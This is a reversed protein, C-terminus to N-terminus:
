IHFCSEGATFIGGGDVAGAARRVKEVVRIQVFARSKGLDLALAESQEAQQRGLDARDLLLAGPHQLVEPAYRVAQALEDHEAGQLVAVLGEKVAHDHVIDFLGHGDDVGGHDALGALDVAM